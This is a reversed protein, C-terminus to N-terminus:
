VAQSVHQQPFDVKQLMEDDWQRTKANYPAYFAAETRNWGFVGTLKYTMWSAETMVYAAKAFVEPRYKKWWYQKGFGNYIGM